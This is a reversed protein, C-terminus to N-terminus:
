FVYDMGIIFPHNVQLLILKEVLLSDVSEHEIVIDKRICKMAHLTKKKRQRVLYVKGFTGHGIINLLEFDEFTAQVLTDRRWVTTSNAQSHEKLMADFNFDDKDLERSNRLFDRGASNRYEISKNLNNMLHEADSPEQTVKSSPSIRYKPTTGPKQFETDEEYIRCLILPMRSIGHSVDKPSTCFDALTKSKPIGFIPLNDKKLSLYLLKVM